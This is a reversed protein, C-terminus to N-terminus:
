GEEVNEEHAVRQPLTWVLQWLRPLGVQCLLWWNWLRVQFQEGELEEKAVIRTTTGM